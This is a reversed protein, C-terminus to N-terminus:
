KNILERSRSPHVSMVDQMWCAGERERERERERLGGGVGGGGGGGGGGVGM